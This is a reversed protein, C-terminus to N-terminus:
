PRVVQVTPDCKVRSAWGDIKDVVHSYRTWVLSGRPFPRTNLHDLGGPTHDTLMRLCRKCRQRDNIFPGAVHQLWVDDQLFREPTM